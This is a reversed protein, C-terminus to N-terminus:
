ATVFGASVKRAREETQALAEEMSQKALDILHDMGPVRGALTLQASVAAFDFGLGDAIATKLYPDAHNWSEQPAGPGYGGGYALLVTAPRGALPNPMGGVFLSRGVIFAQDIWAKLNSPIGWNYMPSSILLTDASVLEEVLEDRLAGAARQKETHSEAPTIVATLADDDLHPLPHTGLDRYTVKAGPHEADWVKRYAAALSKSVSGEASSSADIHLLHTM